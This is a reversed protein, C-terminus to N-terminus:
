VLIIRSIPQLRDCRLGSKSGMGTRAINTTSLTVIPFTKSWTSGKGGVWIVGGISFMWRKDLHQEQWFYLYIFGSFRRFLIIKRNCHPM